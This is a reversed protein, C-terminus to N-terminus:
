CDLPEECSLLQFNISRTCNVEGMVYVDEHNNATHSPHRREGFPTVLGSSHEVRLCYPNFAHRNVADM